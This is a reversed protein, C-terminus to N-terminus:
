TVVIEAEINEGAELIAETRLTVTLRGKEEAPSSDVVRGDVKVRVADLDKGSPLEFVLQRVRLRGWAVEITEKQRDVIWKQTFSGWGEAGSWFSRHNEPKWEPM